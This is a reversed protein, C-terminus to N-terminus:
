SISVSAVVTATNSITTGTVVTTNSYSTNTATIDTTTIQSATSTETSVAGVVTIATGITLIGNTVSGIVGSTSSAQSVSTVVTVTTNATVKSATVSTNGTIKPISATTSSIGTVVTATTTTLSGTKVKGSTGDALLIGNATFNNSSKYLGGDINHEVVIWDNVSGNSGSKNNIAIILDGSEVYYARNTGSLFFTGDARYTWGASYDKNLETAFDASSSVIGKFVMADNATFGQTIADDVYGKTAIHQSATPIQATAAGTIILENTTIQGDVTVNDNLYSQGTITLTGPLNLSNIPTVVGQNLYVPTNTAGITTTSATIRGNEAVYVFQSISGVASSSAIHTLYMDSHHNPFYVTHNNENLNQIKICKNDLNRNYLIISGKLYLDRWRRIISGSNSYGLDVGTQATASATITSADNLPLITSMESVGNVKFRLTTTGLVSPATTSYISLSSNDIYHITNVIKTSTTSYFLVRNATFSDVGTGGNAVSLIGDVGIDNIATTGDFATSASNSTLNVKLTRGTELKTASAANGTIDNALAGTIATIEGANIYVPTNTTGITANSAQLVGTNDMYVPNISSGVGTDNTSGTVLWGSASPLYHHKNNTTSTPQLWHGGTNESYLFIQGESNNVTASLSNGLILDTTGVATTSGINTQRISGITYDNYNRFGLITTNNDLSLAQFANRIKPIVMTTKQIQQENIQLDPTISLIWKKSKLTNYLSGNSWYSVQVNKIVANIYPWSINCKKTTTDYNGIYLCIYDESNEKKMFYVPLNLYVSNTGLSTVMLNYSTDWETTSRYMGTVYYTINNYSNSQAMTTINIEFNIM